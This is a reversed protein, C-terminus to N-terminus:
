PMGTGPASGVHRQTRRNGREELDAQEILEPACEPLAGSRWPLMRALAGRMMRYIVRKPYRFERHM